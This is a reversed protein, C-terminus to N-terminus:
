RRRRLSVGAGLAVLALAGVTWPASRKGPAAVSCGEDEAEPPPAPAPGGGTAATTTANSGGGSPNAIPECDLSSGGNDVCTGTQDDETVCSDGANALECPGSPVDAWAPAALLSATLALSPTTWKKM